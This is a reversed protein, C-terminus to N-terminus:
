SSRKRDVLSVLTGVTGFTEASVEDDAFTVGFREEIAVVVLVVAMSDLEPMAGFLPTDATLTATRKKLHLVEGLLGRMEDLCSPSALERENSDSKLM